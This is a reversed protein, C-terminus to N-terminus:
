PTVGPEIRVAVVGAKLMGLRKAAETSLDIGRGLKMAPGRDTITVIVSSGTDIRTVRVRKGFPLWPSAATLENEDFPLGSATLRGRHYNGGYHSAVTEMTAWGQLYILRDSLANLTASNDSVERALGNREARLGANESLSMGLLFLAGFVLFASCAALTILAGRQDTEVKITTM